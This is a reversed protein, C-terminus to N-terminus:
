ARMKLEIYLVRATRNLAEALKLAAEIGDALQKALKDLEQSRRTVKGDKIIKEIKQVIAVFSHLERIIRRAQGLKQPTLYKM